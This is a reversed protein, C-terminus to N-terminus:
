VGRTLRASAAAASRTAATAPRCHGLVKFKTRSGSGVWLVAIVRVKEEKDSKRKGYRRKNKNSKGYRTKRARTTSAAQQQEEETSARWGAAVRVRAPVAGAEERDEKRMVKMDSSYEDGSYSEEEGSSYSDGSGSGEDGYGYYEDSEFPYAEEDERCCTASAPNMVCKGTGTCKGVCNPWNPHSPGGYGGYGYDDGGKYGRAM